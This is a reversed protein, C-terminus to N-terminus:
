LIKFIPYGSIYSTFILIYIVELLKVGKILYSFIISFTSLFLLYIITSLSNDIPKVIFIPITCVMFFCFLVFIKVFLQQNVTYCSTIFSFKLLEKNEINIFKDYISFSLLFILPIIINSSIKYSVFFSIVWLITLIIIRLNSFSKKFVTFYLLFLSSFSKKIRPEIKNYKNNDVKLNLDNKVLSFNQTKKIIRKKESIFYRNFFFSFIYIIFLAIPFYIIRLSFNSLWNINELKLYTINKTKNIYGIAYFKDMINYKQSFENKIVSSFENFGLLDFNSNILPSSLFFILCIFFTIKVGRYQIFIDLILIISSLIFIYPINFYIFPYLFTIFNFSKFNILYLSLIILVLFSFLVIIYALWKYLLLIKNSTITARVINGLGSEKEEIYNGEIFFFGIFSLILNTFIAGLSSVWISNSEGTYKDIYFTIYSSDKNPILFLSIVILLIISNLFSKKNYLNITYLKTLNIINKM